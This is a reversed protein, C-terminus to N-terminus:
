MRHFVRVIASGRGSAAAPRLLEVRRRLRVARHHEGAWRIRSMRLDDSYLRHTGAIM